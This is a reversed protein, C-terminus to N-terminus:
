HRRKQGINVSNILKNVEPDSAKADMHKTKNETEPITVNAASYERPNKAKWSSSMSVNLSRSTVTVLCSNTANRKFKRLSCLLWASVWPGAVGALVGLRGLGGPCARPKLSLLPQLDAPLPALVRLALRIWSNEDETDGPFSNSAEPLEPGCDRLPIM